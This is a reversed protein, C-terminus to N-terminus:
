SEREEFMQQIYKDFEQLDMYQTQLETNEDALYHAFNRMEQSVKEVGYIRSFSSM